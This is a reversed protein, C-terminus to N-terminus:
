VAAASRPFSSPSSWPLVSTLIGLGSMAFTNRMVKLIQKIQGANRFLMEFWKLGVFECQSLKLPPRYNFFSYVWGYLPFYSFIFVLVMFPLIMLFLKFGQSMKKKPKPASIAKGPAM